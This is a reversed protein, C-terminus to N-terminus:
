IFPQNTVHIIDSTTSSRIAQEAYLAKTFSEIPDVTHSTSTTVVHQPTSPQPDILRCDSAVTAISMHMDKRGEKMRIRDVHDCGKVNGLTYLDPNGKGLELRAVPGADLHTVDHAHTVSRDLPFVLSGMCKM